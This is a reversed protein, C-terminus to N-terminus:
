EIGHMVVPQQIIVDDQHEVVSVARCFHGPETHNPPMLTAAAESRCAAWPLLFNELFLTRKQKQKTKHTHTRARACRSHKSTLENQSIRACVHPKRM